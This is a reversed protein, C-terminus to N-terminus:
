VNVFEQKACITGGTEEKFETAMIIAESANKARFVMIEEMFPRYFGPITLREAIKIIWKSKIKKAGHREIIANSIDISKQDACAFVGFRYYWNRFWNLM